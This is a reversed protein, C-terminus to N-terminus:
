GAAAGHRDRCAGDGAGAGACAGGLGPHPERQDVGAEHRAIVGGDADFLLARSAHSGQDIALVCDMACTHDM